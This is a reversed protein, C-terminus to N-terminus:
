QFSARVVKECVHPFCYFSTLTSPNIIRLCFIIHLWKEERNGYEPQFRFSHNLELIGKRKRETCEAYELYFFLKMFVYFM